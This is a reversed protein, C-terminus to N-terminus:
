LDRELLQGIAQHQRGGLVVDQLDPASRVATPNIASALTPLEADRGSLSGRHPGRGLLISLTLTAVIVVVLVVLAVQPRREGRFGFLALLSSEEEDGALSSTDVRELIPKQGAPPEAPLVATHAVPAVREAHDHFRRLLDAADAGVARAYASIFGAVFVRAPLADLRAEELLELSAEKIKTARSLDAISM